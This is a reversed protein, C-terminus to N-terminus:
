NLMARIKALAKVANQFNSSPKSSQPQKRLYHRLDRGAGEFHGMELRLLGRQRYLDATAPDTIIMLDMMSLAKDFARTRLYIMRLNNLMRALIQRNTSRRLWPEIDSGAGDGALERLDERSVRNGCNFPDLFIEQSKWRHRVVFHGPLGIGDIPFDVRYAVSMYIASLTIPIGQRREIVDNLFSNRADYYDDTNGAFGYEGFLVDNLADITAEPGRDPDISSRVRTAAEDLFDLYPALSLQPYEECALLLAAEALPIALDPLTVIQEFTRRSRTTVALESHLVKSLAQRRPGGMASLIPGADHNIMSSVVYDHDAAARDPQRDGPLQRGMMRDDEEFPADRATLRGPGRGAHETRVPLRDAVARQKAQTQGAQVHVTAPAIDEDALGTDIHAIPIRARQDQGGVLPFPGLQAGPVFPLTGAPEVTIQNLGILNGGHLWPQGQLQGAGKVARAVM